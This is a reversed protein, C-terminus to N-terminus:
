YGCIYSDVPSLCGSVGDVGKGVTRNYSKVGMPSMHGRPLGSLTHYCRWQQWRARLHPFFTDYCPPQHHPQKNTASSMILTLLHLSPSTHYHFWLYTLNLNLFILEAKCIHAKCMLTLNHSM